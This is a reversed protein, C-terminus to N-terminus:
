PQDGSEPLPGGIMVHEIHSGVPGFVRLAVVQPEAPKVQWGHGGMVGAHAACVFLMDRGDDSRAEHTAVNDAMVGSGGPALHLGGKSIACNWVHIETGDMANTM